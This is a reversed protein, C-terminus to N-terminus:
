RSAASGSARPPSPPSRRPSPRGAMARSASTPLIRRTARPRSSSRRSRRPRRRAMPGVQQMAAEVAAGRALKALTDTIVAEQEPLFTVTRQLDVASPPPEVPVARPSNLDSRVYTGRGVEGIVLGRRALEAYVRSATSVAIGRAYAFERQPPLREGPRLRGAAMDAAVEDAVERFDKSAM